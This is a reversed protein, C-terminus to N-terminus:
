NANYYEKIIDYIFDQVDKSFHDIKYTKKINVLEGKQMLSLLSAAEECDSKLQKKEEELNKIQSNRKQASETLKKIELVYTECKEKYVKLKKQSEEYKPKYNEECKPTKRIKELEKVLDVAVVEQPDKLVIEKKLFKNRILELFSKM